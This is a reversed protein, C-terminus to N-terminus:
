FLHSQAHRRSPLSLNACSGLSFRRLGDRVQIKLRRDRILEYLANRADQPNLSLAQIIDNFIRNHIGIGAAYSRMNKDEKM